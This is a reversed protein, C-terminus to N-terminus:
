SIFRESELSRGRGIEGKNVLKGENIITDKEADWLGKDTNLPMLYDFKNVKKMHEISCRETIIDLEDESLEVDLFKAIKDVHGRLDRRVNSYHMLMVNPDNRYPWWKKVYGFYLGELSEGPLIAEVAAPPIDSDFSDDSINPPFGKIFTRLRFALSFSSAVSISCVHSHDMMSAVMSQVLASVEGSRDFSKQILLFSSQSVQPSTLGM